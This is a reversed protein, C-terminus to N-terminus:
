FIEVDLFEGCSLFIEGRIIDVADAVFIFYPFSSCTSDDGVGSFPDQHRRVGERGERVLLFNDKRCTLHRHCYSSSSSVIIIIIIIM